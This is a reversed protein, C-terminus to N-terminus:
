YVCVTNLLTVPLPINHFFGYLKGSQRRQQARADRSSELGSFCEIFIRFDKLVRPLAPQTEAVGQLARLIGDIEARSVLAVRPRAQIGFFAHVVPLGDVARQFIERALPQREVESYHADISGAIRREVLGWSFNM